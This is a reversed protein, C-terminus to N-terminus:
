IILSLKHEIMSGFLATITKLEDTYYYWSTYNYGLTWKLSNPLYKFRDLTIQPYEYSKWFM